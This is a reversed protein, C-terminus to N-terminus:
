KSAAGKEGAIRKLERECFDCLERAYEESPSEAVIRLRPRNEDPCIWAWGDRRSLRMGGGFEVHKERNDCPHNDCPRNQQCLPTTM